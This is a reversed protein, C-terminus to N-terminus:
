QKNHQLVQQSQDDHNGQNVSTEFDKVSHSPAEINLVNYNRLFYSPVYSRELEELLRHLIELVRNGIASWSWASKEKRKAIERFFIMKLLYSNILDDYSRLRHRTQLLLQLENNASSANEHFLLDQDSCHRLTKCITYCSRAPSEVSSIIQKEVMSTSIRWYLSAYPNNQITPSVKPIVHYCEFGQEPSVIASNPWGVIEIAPILDVTVIMRKFRCGRWLFFLRSGPKTQSNDVTVGVNGRSSYDRLKHLCASMAKLDAEESHRDFLSHFHIHLKEAILFGDNDVFDNWKEMEQDHIRIRLYGPPDGPSEYVYCAKSLETLSCMYDVEDPEGVKTNEVTSGAQLLICTFKPHAETMSELAAEIYCRIDQEISEVESTRKVLGLGETENLRILLSSFDVDKTMSSTFLPTHSIETYLAEKDQSKKFDNIIHDFGPGGLEDGNAFSYKGRSEKSHYQQMQNPTFIPLEATAMYRRKRIYSKASLGANDQITSCAGYSLLAEVVNWRHHYAAYHLPTAGHQDTANVQAGGEQILHRICIQANALEAAIHLPTIGSKDPINVNAGGSILLLVTKRVNEEEQSRVSAAIAHYLPTQRDVDQKNPDAGSEILIRLCDERYKSAAYHLATRGWKNPLNVRAGSKILLAVIDRHGNESAYHLASRGRRTQVDVIAGSKILQEVDAKCGSFAARHLPTGGNGEYRLSM